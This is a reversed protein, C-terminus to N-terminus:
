SSISGPLVKNLFGLTPCLWWRRPPDPALRASAGRHGQEAYNSQAPTERQREEAQGTQSGGQLWGQVAPAEATPELQCGPPPEM